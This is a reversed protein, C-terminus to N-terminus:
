SERGLPDEQEEGGNKVTSAAHEAGDDVHEHLKDVEHHRLPHPHWFTSKESPKEAHFYDKIVEVQVQPHFCVLRRDIRDSLNLCV